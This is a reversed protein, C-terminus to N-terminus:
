IKQLKLEMAILLVVELMKLGRAAANRVYRKEDNETFLLLEAIIQLSQGDKLSNCILAEIAANRVYRDPDHLAMTLYQIALLDGKGIETLVRAAAKRAHTNGHLLMWLISHSAYMDDLNILM